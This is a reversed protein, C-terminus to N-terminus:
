VSKGGLLGVGERVMPSVSGNVAVKAGVSAVLLFTDHVLLSLSMAVTSSAPKTVATAAPVASMVTVVSSPPLVAVQTTVTITGTVFTLKFLM